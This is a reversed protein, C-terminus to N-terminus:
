EACYLRKREAENQYLRLAAELSAADVGLSLPRGALRETATREAEAHPEGAFRLTLYHIAAAIPAAEDATAPTASGAFAEILQHEVSVPQGAPASTQAHFGALAHRLSQTYSAVQMLAPLDQPAAAKGHHMPAFAPDNAAANALFCRWHKIVSLESLLFAARLRTLRERTVRAFVRTAGGPASLRLVGDDLTVRWNPKATVLLPRLLPDIHAAQLTEITEAREAFELTDGTLQLRARAGLPMDRCVGYSRCEDDDPSYFAMLRNEIGGDDNVILMEESPVAFGLLQLSTYTADISMWWGVLAPTEIAAAPRVALVILVFAALCRPKQIIARRM